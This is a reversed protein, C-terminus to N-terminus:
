AFILTSNVSFTTTRGHTIRFDSLSLKLMFACGKNIKVWIFADNSFAIYGKHSYRACKNSVTIVVKLRNILYNRGMLSFNPKDRLFTREM